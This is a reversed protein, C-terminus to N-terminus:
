QLPVSRHAARVVLGHGELQNLRDTALSFLILMQQVLDTEERTDTAKVQARTLSSAMRRLDDGDELVHGQLADPIRGTATLRDLQAHAFSVVEEETKARRLQEVWKDLIM